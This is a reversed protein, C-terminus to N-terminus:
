YDEKNLFVTILFIKIIYFTVKQTLKKACFKTARYLFLKKRRVTETTQICVCVYIQNCMYRYKPKGPPESLLSDAQLAPSRPQMGPDSLCGPPSLPLGSWHEQRSFEMFLPAQHAVTWSTMFLSVRSLMRVSQLRIM